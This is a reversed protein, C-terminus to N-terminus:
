WEVRRNHFLSVPFGGVTMAALRLARALPRADRAAASLLASLGANILVSFRANPLRLDSLWRVPTRFCHAITVNLGNDTSEAAHWWHMPIYIVDGPELTVRYPVLEAFSKPWYVPPIRWVGRRAMPAIADFTAQDPPLILFEKPSCVQATFTEDGTHVHWDTYGARALFLRDPYFRAPHKELDFFTFGGVDDALERFRAIPESNLQIYPHHEDEVQDLFAGLTMPGNLPSFVDVVMDLSYLPIPEFRFGYDTGVPMDGASARLVAVNWKGVAPWHKAGGRVVCPHHRLVFREMFEHERIDPTVEEVGRAREYNPFHPLWRERM